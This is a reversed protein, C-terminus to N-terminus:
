KFAPEPRKGNYEEAIEDFIRAMIFDNETLGGAAHTTLTIKLKNYMLTLAPHHGQEESMISVLDLFYKAEVFDKFKFEKTIKKDEVLQWGRYQAILKEIKEKPMPPVGGECPVCKSPLDEKAALVPNKIVDQLNKVADEYDPPSTLEPVIQSYRLRDNKDIIHVSRALLNLEKILLGYNIGFSSYRYDSLVTENKISNEQCFRRQAFPLDKSIGVVAVDPSFGSSRKNFEKVQMDCVPTDLSPFSSIIKIKGAFNALGFLQMDQSIVRFDPAKMGRKLQRGVLTMPSGKFTIEGQM